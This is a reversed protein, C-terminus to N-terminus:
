AASKEKQSVIQDLATVLGRIPAALVNVMGTAPSQLSGLMKVILEERSPIIALANVQAGDIVSGEMLGAKLVLSGSEEAHRHLTKAAATIEGGCFAIAVPGELYEMLGELKLDDCVRKVLTNKLVRYRSGDEALDNRLASIQSVTLGRYETLIVDNDEGFLSKIEAVKELKEAAPM